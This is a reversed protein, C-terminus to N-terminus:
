AAGSEIKLYRIQDDYLRLFVEFRRAHMEAREPRPRVVRVRAGMVRMAEEVSGHAGAAVSALMAAGLLMADPERVVGVDMGLVDAHEAVWRPNKAGGGCLRVARLRHGHANMTEIIHRTGYALAQVSAAYLRALGELSSDLGLGHIAGRAHPDARPSRNGHFYPLVHLGRTLAPGETAELRSAIEELRAFPDSGLEAGRAHSAALHDLLAGAAGQGGESLWMGPVMAGLYPGWVGPVFRPAPSVAMHCASTGAIIALEEDLKGASALTGLGGAHADIIGIGVAARTTLGLHAAAAATVNGASAGLPAVRLGARGEELVAEIGAARYLERDFREEPALYGWKCTVTCVSRPDDGSARYVLFDALDLAKGIRAFTGPLREAMWALKPAEMEPSLRGGAYRLAEAGTASLRDAQETARHDMWVIVNREPSGEPDVSLPFGKMDLLVLSCTADFGIGLVREPAVAAVSMAERVAKGAASWIEESSQEAFDPRPRHLTVPSVATALCRGAGDFVGARVSLTGADVGVFLDGEM